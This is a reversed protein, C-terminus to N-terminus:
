GRILLQFVGEVQTDVTTSFRARVTTQSYPKNSPVTGGGIAVQIVTGTRYSSGDEYLVPTSNIVPVNFTVSADDASVSIVSTIIEGPRLCDTAILDYRRKDFLRKELQKM